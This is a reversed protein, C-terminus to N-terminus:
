KKSCQSIYEKGYVFILCSHNLEEKPPLMGLMRSGAEAIGERLEKQSEDAIDKINRTCIVCSANADSHGTVQFLLHEEQGKIYASSGAKVEIALTGGKPVMMGKGRGLVVPIKLNSVLLDIKTYKDISVYRRDQTSVEGYPMFARIVIEEALRGAINRRIQTNGAEYPLARYRDVTNRFDINEQYIMKLLDIQELTTPNLKKLVDQPKLIQQTEAPENNEEKLNGTKTVRDNVNKEFREQIIDVTVDPAISEVYGGLKSLATELKQQGASVHESMQCGHIGLNAFIQSKAVQSANVCKKALECRKEIFQRHKKAVEYAKRAGQQIRRAEELTALAAPLAPPNSAAAAVEAVAAAVAADAIMLAGHAADEAMKATELIRRSNELEALTEQHLEEAERKGKEIMELTIQGTHIISLISQRIADIQQVDAQGAM